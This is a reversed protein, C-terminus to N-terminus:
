LRRLSAVPFPKWFPTVVSAAGPELVFWPADAAPRLVQFSQAPMYSQGLLLAVRGQADRAVDLVLVAHGFPTGTMVFFDGGEIEVVAIKKGDREISATGAWAFVDDLWSRFLPHTDAQPAALKRFALKNVVIVGREGGLWSRYSLTQGSVSRYSLDREGRGYRWEAHLRLIVDACHQLDKTGVDLDAVAVISRHQGDEHLRQGRNDVVPSGTPELPLTRLFSAFSGPRTPVRTFGAPVDFRASLGDSSRPAWPYVAKATEGGTEARAGTVVLLLLVSVRISARLMTERRVVTRSRSRSDNM